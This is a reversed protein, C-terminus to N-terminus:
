LRVEEVGPVRVLQNSTVTHPVMRTVIEREVVPVAAVGDPAPALVQRTVQRTVRSSPGYNANANNSYGVPASGYDAGDWGQDQQQYYYQPQTLVPPPAAAAAYGSAPYAGVANGSADYYVSPNVYVGGDLGAGGAVFQAPQAAAYPLSQATAANNMIYGQEVVPNWRQQRPAYTGPKPTVSHPEASWALPLGDGTVNRRGAEPMAAVDIRDRYVHQSGVIAVPPLSVNLLQPGRPGQPSPYARRREWLERQRNESRIAESMWNSAHVDM